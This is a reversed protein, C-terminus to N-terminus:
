VGLRKRMEEFESLQGMDMWARESIPFVGVKEGNDMCRKALEPLHIFEGDNIYDIVSPELMYLGTNVLFSFDPKEKLKTIMGTEDTEVVGYPIVIDKM